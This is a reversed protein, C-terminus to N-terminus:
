AYGIITTQGSTGTARVHSTRVDIREGDFVPHAVDVESDVARLTIVGDGGARISKTVFPLPDDDDPTIVFVAARRRHCLTVM